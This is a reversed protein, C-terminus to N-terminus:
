KKPLRLISRAFKEKRDVLNKMRLQCRVQTHKLNMLSLSVASRETVHIALLLVGVVHELEKSQYAM